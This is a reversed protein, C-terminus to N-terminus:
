KKEKTFLLPWYTGKNMTKGYNWNMIRDDVIVDHWEGFHWLKFRYLGFKEAEESMNHDLDISSEIRHRGNSDKRWCHSRLIEIVWEFELYFRGQRIFATPQCILGHCGQYFEEFYNHNTFKLDRGNEELQKKKFDLIRTCEPEKIM